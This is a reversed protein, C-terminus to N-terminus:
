VQVNGVLHNWDHIMPIINSNNENDGGDEEKGFKWGFQKADLSYQKLLAAHHM